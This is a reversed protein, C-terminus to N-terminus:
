LINVFKRTASSEYVATILEVSRRAEAGNLVPDRNQDIAALLDGLLEAHAQVALGVMGQAPEAAGGVHQGAQPDVFLEEGEVQWLHLDEGLFIVNGQSGHIELRASQGEHTLTTGLITGHAGSVFKLAATGIDEVEINHALNDAFGAVESVKGMMWLLLDLYHISQNMLAGGGDLAKTGQWGRGYYAHSRFWPITASGWLLRGLRGERIAQYARKFVPYARYQHTAGLRVGNERCAAILADIRELTIDIPKTCTVHKGARAAKIGLEAHLGSPVVIDVVDIDERALLAEYDTYAEAGFQAAKAQAREPVADCVAVLRAQPLLKIAELHTDSIVGCGIVAFGHTRGSTATM